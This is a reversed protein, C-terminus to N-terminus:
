LCLKVGRQDSVNQEPSKPKETAHSPTDCRPLMTNLADRGTEQSLFVCKPNNTGLTTSSHEQICRILTNQAKPAKKGALPCATRGRGQVSHSVMSGNRIEGGEPRARKVPHAPKQCWRREGKERVGGRRKKEGGRRREKEIDFLIKVRMEAAHM